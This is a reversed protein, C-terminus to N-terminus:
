EPSVVVRKSSSMQARGNLARQVIPEGTVYPGDAGRADAFNGLRSMASRRALSQVRDSRAVVDKSVTAIIKRRNSCPLQGVDFAAILLQQNRRQRYQTKTESNTRPVPVSVKSAAISLIARSGAVMYSKLIASQRGRPNMADFGDLGDLGDFGERLEM